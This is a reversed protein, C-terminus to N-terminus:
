RWAGAAKSEPFLCPVWPRNPRTRFIECLRAEIGSGDMGYLNATRVVAIGAWGPRDMCLYVEACSKPVNPFNCFAVPLKTMDTQRDTQGDTRSDAHFLDGAVPRIKM